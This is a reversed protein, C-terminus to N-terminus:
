KLTNGIVMTYRNRSQMLYEYAERSLACMATGAQGVAFFIPGGSEDEFIDVRDIPAEFEEAAKACWLNEHGPRSLWEIVATVLGHITDACSEPSPDEPDPGGFELYKYVPKMGIRNDIDDLYKRVTGSNEGKAIARVHPLGTKDLSIFPMLEQAYVSHRFAGPGRKLFEEALHRLEILIKMAESGREADERHKRIADISPRILTKADAVPESGKPLAADVRFETGGSGGTGMPDTMMDNVKEVAM